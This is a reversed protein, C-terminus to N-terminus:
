QNILLQPFCPHELGITSVIPRFHIEEKHIKPLGYICPVILDKPVLKDKVENDLSSNKIAQTVKKIIKSSPDITLIKYSNSEIIHELM